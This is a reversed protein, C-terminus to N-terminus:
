NLDIEGFKMTGKCRTFKGEDMKCGVDEKNEVWEMWWEMGDGEGDVNWKEIRWM